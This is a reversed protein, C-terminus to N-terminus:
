YCWGVTWEFHCFHNNKRARKFRRWSMKRQADCEIVSASVMAALPALFVKALPVVVKMLPVAFRGLLAGPFGGSQIIKSSIM